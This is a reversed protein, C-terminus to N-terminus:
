TGHAKIGKDINDGVLKYGLSPSNMTVSQPSQRIDEMSVSPSLVPGIYIYNYILIHLYVNFHEQMMCLLCATHTGPADEGASIDSESSSIPSYTPATIDSSVDSLRLIPILIRALM